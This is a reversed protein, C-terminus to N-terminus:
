NQPKLIFIPLFHKSTPIFSPTISKYKSDNYIYYHSIKDYPSCELKPLHNTLPKQFTGSTSQKRNFTDKAVRPLSQSLRNETLTNQVTTILNTQGDEVIKSNEEKDINELKEDDEKTKLYQTLSQCEIKSYVM